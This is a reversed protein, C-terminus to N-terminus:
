PVRLARITRQIQADARDISSRAQGYGAEDTRRAADALALYNRQALRLEAALSATPPSALSHAAAGHARALETAARVQATSTRARALQARGDVRIANLRRLAAAARELQKVREHTAVSGAAEPPAAGHNRAAGGGAHGTVFGAAGATVVAGAALVGLAGRRSPRGPLRGRLTSLADPLGLTRRRGGPRSLRGRRKFVADVKLLDFATLLKAALARIAATRARRAPAKPATSPASGRSPQPAPASPRRPPAPRASGRSSEAAAASPRRPPAPRSSARSPEATPPRSQTPEDRRQRELRGVAMLARTPLRGASSATDLGLDAAVLRVGNRNFWEILTGLDLASGSLRDLSAVVLGGPKGAAIRRLTRTLGPRGLGRGDAPEHDWVLEVLRLGKRACTAEIARAQARLEPGDPRKGEPISAYGLVAARAPASARRGQRGSRPAPKGSAARPRDSVPLSASARAEQETAVGSGTSEQPRQREFRGVAVLTRISLRGEPSTTDLGLDASALRVGNRDFWEILTGLDSASRSLRDLSTVVLGSAEVAAIRRMASTLGPRGVGAGDPPEHDWILEVLRWGRRACLDEIARAQAGLGPGDPEEGAPISAYGFVAAPAAAKGKRGGPTSPRSPEGEPPRNLTAVERLSAAPPDDNAAPRTL